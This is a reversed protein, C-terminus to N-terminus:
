ASILPQFVTPLERDTVWARVTDTFLVPAELNWVHGCNPVIVGKAGPITRTLLRGASKAYITEKHGVAVLTPSKTKTPIEIDLYTTMVDTLTKASFAAFDDSLQDRYKAPIGFQWCVVAALQKPRLMRLIPENLMSMWVLLKSMRAATGSLIVHDVQEPAAVMLAQAVVGGFSLGVVHTKGNPSTGEILESLRQVIDAMSLPLTASRGHGPLDPALCHFEDLNELQPQWMRGSLPSGHLFLITPNKPNGSEHVFLKQEM